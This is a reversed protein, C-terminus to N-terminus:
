SLSLSLSHCVTELYTKVSSLKLPKLLSTKQLQELPLKEIPTFRWREKVCGVHQQQAPPWRRVHAAFADDCADSCFVLPSWLARLDVEVMFIFGAINDLESKAAAWLTGESELHEEVHLLLCRPYVFGYSPAPVRQRHPWATGQVSKWACSEFGPHGSYKPLSVM